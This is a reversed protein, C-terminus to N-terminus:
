KKIHRSLAAAYAAVSADGQPTVEEETGEVPEEDLTNSENLTTNSSSPFYNERLTQIKEKFGEVSDFEVAESLSELKAAQTDTLGEAVEAFAQAREVTGVQSKLEMNENMTDNLQNELEEVRAALEEVVDVKDEPIDVYNETFLNRLGLLFQETLQTKLGIDVALRNEELWHEVVSDLYEDLKESMEESIVSYSAELDAEMEEALEAVMENVKAVVATEFINTAKTKFEETLESGEFIANVDDSVDIDEATISPAKKSSGQMPASKDGQDKSGKLKKARTGTPEAVEANVDFSSKKAEEINEDTVKNKLVM